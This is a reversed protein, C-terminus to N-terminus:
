SRSFDFFSPGNLFDVELGDFPSLNMQIKYSRKEDGVEFNNDGVKLVVRYNSM